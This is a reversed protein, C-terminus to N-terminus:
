VVRVNQIWRKSIVTQFELPPKVRSPSQYHFPFTVIEYYIETVQKGMKFYRGLENTSDRIHGLLGCTVKGGYREKHEKGLTRTELCLVRVTLHLKNGGLENVALDDTHIGM